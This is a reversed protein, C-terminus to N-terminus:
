EQSWDRGVVLVGPHDEGRDRCRQHEIEFDASNRTCIVHDHERCWRMLQWDKRKLLGRDRLPVVDFGLETLRYAIELSIHEDLLIALAV